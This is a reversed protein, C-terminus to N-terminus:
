IGPKGHDIGTHKLKPLLRRPRQDLLQLGRSQQRAAHLLYSARQWASTSQDALLSALHEDACDAVLQDLHAVLDAWPHFSSPQTALQVILAEPGFAPLGSAWSVIDLKRQLLLRTTSWTPPM